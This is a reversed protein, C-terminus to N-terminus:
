VGGMFRAYAEPWWRQAMVVKDGTPCSLGDFWNCATQFTVGFQDACAERSGCCAKMLGAWAVTVAGRVAGADIV